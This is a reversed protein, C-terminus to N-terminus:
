APNRLTRAAQNWAVSLARELSASKGSLRDSDTDLSVSHDCDPNSGDQNCCIHLTQWARGYYEAVGSWDLSASGGCLPCASLAVAHAGQGDDFLETGAYALYDELGQIAYTRAQPTGVGCVIEFSPRWEQLFWQVDPWLDGFAAASAAELQAYLSESLTNTAVFESVQSPLGNLFSTDASKAAHLRTVLTSFADFNM